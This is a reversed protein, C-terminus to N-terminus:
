AQVSKIWEVAKELSYFIRTPMKPRNFKLYFDTVIKQAWNRIVIADCYTYHNGSTDAAWERVEPDVDSFSGFQYINYFRGGGHKDLFAYGIQTIEKGIRTDPPVIVHFIRNDYLRFIVGDNNQEAILAADFFDTNDKKLIM